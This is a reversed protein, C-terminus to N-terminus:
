EQSLFYEQIQIVPMTVAQTEFKFTGIKSVIDPCMVKCHGDHGHCRACMVNSPLYTSGATLWACMSAYGDVCRHVHTDM